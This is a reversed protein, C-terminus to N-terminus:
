IVDRSMYHLQTVIYVFLCWFFLKKINKDHKWSPHISSWGIEVLLILIDKLLASTLDIPSSVLWLMTCEHTRLHKCSLGQEMPHVLPVGTHELLPPSTPPSPPSLDEILFADLESDSYIEMNTTAVKWHDILIGGLTVDQRGKRKWECIHSLVSAQCEGFTMMKWKLHSPAYHATVSPSAWARWVTCGGSM